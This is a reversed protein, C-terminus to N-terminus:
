AHGQEHELPDVSQVGHLFPEFGGDDGDVGVEDEDVVVAPGRTPVLPDM